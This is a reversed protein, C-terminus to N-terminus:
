VWSDEMSKCPDSSRKGRLEPPSFSSFSSSHPLFASPPKTVLLLFYSPLVQTTSKSVESNAPEKHHKLSQFPNQTLHWLSEQYFSGEERIQSHVKQLSDALLKSSHIPLSAWNTSKRSEGLYYSGSYRKQHEGLYFSTQSLEM